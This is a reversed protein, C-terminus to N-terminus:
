ELSHNTRRQNLRETLYSILVGVAFGLVITYLIMIPVFLSPKLIGALYKIPFFVIDLIYGSYESYWTGKFKSFLIPLPYILILLIIGAVMGARIHKNIRFYQCEFIQVAPFTESFWSVMYWLSPCILLRYSLWLLFLTGGLSICISLPSPEEASLKQILVAIAKLGLLITFVSFTRALWRTEDKARQEVM